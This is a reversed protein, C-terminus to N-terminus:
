QPTLPFADFLIGGFSGTELDGAVEQWFGGLVVTPRRATDAWLGARGLVAENAEIIVHETVSAEADIYGASIGLGFGVELVRGGGTPACAAAALARMYPAEWSEM